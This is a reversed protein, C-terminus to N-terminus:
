VSCITPLTLHTYSVAYIEKLDEATHMTKYTLDQIYLGKQPDERVACNNPSTSLLDLINDNYSRFCAAKIVYQRPNSFLTAISRPIIGELNSSPHTAHFNAPGKITFNRYSRCAGLVIVTTNYGRLSSEVVPLVSENYVENQTAGDYVTAFHFTRPQDGSSSRGLIIEGKNITVISTDKSEEKLSECCVVVSIYESGNLLVSENMMAEIRDRICM